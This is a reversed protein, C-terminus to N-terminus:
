GGAIMPIPEIVAGDPVQTTAFDPRSVLKGNFRVVAYPTDDDLADLVRALTMGEQWDMKKNGVQIMYRLGVPKWGCYLM